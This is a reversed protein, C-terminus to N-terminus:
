QPLLEGLWWARAALSYIAYPRHRADPYSHDLKGPEAPGVVHSHFCGWQLGGSQDLELV